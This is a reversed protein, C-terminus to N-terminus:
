IVVLRRSMRLDLSFFGRSNQEENATCLCASGPSTVSRLTPVERRSSRDFNGTSHSGYFFEAPFAPVVFPYNRTIGLAERRRRECTRVFFILLVAKVSKKELDRSLNIVPFKTASWYIMQGSEWENRYGIKTDSWYIM